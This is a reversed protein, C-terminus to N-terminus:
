PRSRVVLVPIPSRLIMKRATSGLFATLFKNRSHTGMVVMDYKEEADKSVVRAIDKETKLMLGEVAVGQRQYAQVKRKLSQNAEERMKVFMEEVGQSVIRQSYLMDKLRRIQDGISYALVLNAKLKKALKLAEREAPGSAATLDTLVLLKMKKDAPLKYRQSQAEAGLILVPKHAHRLIEESVSGLFAKKIGRNGRSGLVILEPGNKKHDEKLILEVPSGKQFDVKAKVAFRRAQDEMLLPLIDNKEIVNTPVDLAYLVKLDAHMRRAMEAALNELLESRVRAKKNDHSFDDGLLISHATM